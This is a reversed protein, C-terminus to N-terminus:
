RRSFLQESGFRQKINIYKHNKDGYDFVYINALFTTLILLGESM